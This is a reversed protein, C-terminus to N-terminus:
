ISEIKNPTPDTKAIDGLILMYQFVPDMFQISHSHMEPAPVRPYRPPLNTLTFAM